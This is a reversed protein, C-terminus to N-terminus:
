LRIGAFAGQLRLTNRQHTARRVPELPLTRGRTHCREFRSVFRRLYRYGRSRPKSNFFIKERPGAKELLESRKNPGVVKEVTTEVRYLIFDEDTVYNAIFDGEKKSLAIPSDVKCPGLASISFDYVPETM